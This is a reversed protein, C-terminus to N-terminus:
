KSAVVTTFKALSRSLVLRHRHLLQQVTRRGVLVNQRSTLVAPVYLSLNSRVAPAVDSNNIAPHNVSPRIIVHMGRSADHAIVDSLEYRTYPTKVTCM